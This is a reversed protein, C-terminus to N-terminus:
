ETQDDLKREKVTATLEGRGLQINLSTGPGADRANSIRKGDGTRTVVAYGRALLSRPNALELARAAGQLGQRRSELRNRIANGLRDNLEDLRQLDNRIRSVPAVLRLKHAVDDLQERRADFAFRAADAMRWTLDELRARIEAVDPTIMEAAASPTPARRDASGDVLTTDTEHGVGTVVPARTERIARALKEDNFCWLDELSGGGRALLIVDVGYADARRLAALIQPPADEGQVPTPSLLVEAVPYRRRLVNLIDQFAATTPSTVVGIRQPFAPLPRKIEPAFLGEAELQDWLKRFRAYLDGLGAMAQLRDCYLQYEGRAEYVSIKGHARLRAGDKPRPQGLTNTRWMVAKLQAKDDKLTFYWHGSEQARFNSVEGEVWVNQLFDDTDLLGRVYATLRSVSYISEDDTFLPLM